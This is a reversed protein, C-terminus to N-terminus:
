AAIEKFQDERFKVRAKALYDIYYTSRRKVYVQCVNLEDTPMVIVLKTIKRGTKEQVMLSYATEQAFYADIMDANKEKTSTKVDIIAEEDDWDGILDTRGAMELTDSYLAREMAHVAGLHEDLAKKLKLFTEYDQYGWIVYDEVAMKGGVYDEAYTHIRTGRSGARDRVDEAFEAGVEKKWEDLWEHDYRGLVTTVSPYRKGEPTDYYRGWADYGSTLTPFDYRGSFQFKKLNDKPVRLM